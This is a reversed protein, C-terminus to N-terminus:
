PLRTMKFVKVNNGANIRCLYIGASVTQGMDNKGNWRVDHEGSPIEDNLLTKIKQGLVSLIVRVVPEEIASM